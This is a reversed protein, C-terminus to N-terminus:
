VDAPIETRMSMSVINQPKKRTIGPGDFWIHRYSIYMMCSVIAVWPFVLVSLIVGFFGTIALAIILYIVFRNLALADFSQAAAEVLPMEAVAVLPVM